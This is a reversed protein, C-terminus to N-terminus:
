SKRTAETAVIGVGVGLPVLATLIAGTVSLATKLKPLSAITPAAAARHKYADKITTVTGAKVLKANMEIFGIAALGASIATQCVCFLAVRAPIWKLGAYLITWLIFVAAIIALIIKSPSTPAMELDIDEKDNIDINQGLTITTNSGMVVSINGGLGGGAVDSLWVPFAGGVEKLAIPNICMQMINGFTSDGKFGVVAQSNAGYTMQSALGLVGSPNVAGWPSYNFEGGELKKLREETESNEDPGGGSGGGGPIFGVTVLSVGSVGEHRNRGASFTNDFETNFTLNRESHLAMHEKGSEDCFVVGNFHRNFQGRLSASKVGALQNLAPLAFPPMNTANYVSGVVLPQDPDGEEFSVVVENGARPWFFAGWGKGAWPQAVRIWCSSAPDKKGERDWHFQVKVRGYKDCFLEEGAPAVVTATQNGAIVPRPTRREPRFALAAPICEFRNEYRFPAGSGSVYTGELSAEHEVRRVVWRGDANFHKKLTFAHGPVFHPCYSRGTARLSACEEREMRLRVTRDKEPFIKRLEAAREGGGADVGDFRQAYGGPFDYLELKEGPLLNLRHSVKGAPVGDVTLQQAELPQEPLEFCHDRMTYMHARIEQAKEWYAVRMEEIKGGAPLEEYAVDPQLPVDPHKTAEDSLVMVHSGPSHEFYYRIGEEEMLRSAFDFDSERYQVCFDRPEYPATLELRVELGALVKRLIEPVTLHQFIRSQRRLTLLWLKPVLRLEYHHFTEDRRGQKMSCVIGDVHRKQGDQLVIEVTAGQGLVKDFAAPKRLESLCTLDFRFLGSVEETGKLETLLLADKGLATTISLPRDTQSPTSM